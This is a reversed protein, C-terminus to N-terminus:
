LSVTRGLYPLMHSEDRRNESDIFAPAALPYAATSVTRELAYYETRALVIKGSLIELPKCGNSRVARQVYDLVSLDNLFEPCM